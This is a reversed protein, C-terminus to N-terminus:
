AFLKRIGTSFAAPFISAHTEDAFMRHQVHVRPHKRAQVLDFFEKTESVMFQNNGPQEEWEGIALYLRQDRSPTAIRKDREAAILWKDAYWLSPSAALYRRFRDPHQQFVWAAFLGGYSHGVLTWDDAEGRFRRNVLPMVQGTIFALFDPGGGSHRQFEPGYGGDPWAFPTYDRTRQMRYERMDPYVGPYAISVLVAHPAQNMRDALHELHNAAIAFSYDADLTCIVPWRRGPEDAHRLPLRVYLVYDRGNGRATLPLLMTRPLVYPAEGGRAAPAERTGLAAAAALTGLAARRTLPM